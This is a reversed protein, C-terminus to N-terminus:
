LCGTQRLFDEIRHRHLYIGSLVTDGIRIAPIMTIGDRGAAIPDRLIERDEVILDPRDHTLDLLHKRAMYCRPCLRTRYFIITM